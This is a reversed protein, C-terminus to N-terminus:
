WSGYQGHNKALGQSSVVDPHVLCKAPDEVKLWLEYKGQRPRPHVVVFGLGKSMVVSFQYFLHLHM